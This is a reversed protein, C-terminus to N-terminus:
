GRDGGDFLTVVLQIRRGALHLLAEGLHGRHVACHSVHQPQHGPVLCSPVEPYAEGPSPRVHLRWMAPAASWLASGAPRRLPHAAACPAPPQWIWPRGSAYSGPLVPPCARLAPGTAVTDAPRAPRCNSPSRPPERASAATTDASMGHTAPAASGPETHLPVTEYPLSEE